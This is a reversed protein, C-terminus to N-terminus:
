PTNEKESTKQSVNTTAIVIECNPCYFAKAHHGFSGSYELVLRLGAKPVVFRFPPSNKGDPLWYPHTENPLTGKQMENGCYPCINLEM